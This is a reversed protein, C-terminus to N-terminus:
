RGAAEPLFSPGTSVRREGAVVDLVPDLVIDEVGVLIEAWNQVRVPRAGLDVRLGDDRRDRPVAPAEEDPHQTPPDLMVATAFVVRLSPRDISGEVAVLGGMTGELVILHRQDNSLVARKARVGVYGSDAM